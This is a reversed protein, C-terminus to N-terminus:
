DSESYALYSRFVHTSLREVLRGPGHSDLPISPIAMKAEPDENEDVLYVGTM